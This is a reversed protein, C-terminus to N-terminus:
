ATVHIAVWKYRLTETKASLPFKLIVHSDFMNVKSDIEVISGEKDFNPDSAIPLCSLDDANAHDSSKRYVIHYDYGFIHDCEVSWDCEVDHRRPKSPCM